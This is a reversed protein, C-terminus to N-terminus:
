QAGRPMRRGWWWGACRDLDSWSLETSQAETLFRTWGADSPPLVVGSKLQAGKGVRLKGNVMPVQQRRAYWGGVGALAEVVADAVKPWTRSVWADSSWSWGLEPWDTGTSLAQRVDTAEDM